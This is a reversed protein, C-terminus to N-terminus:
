PRRLMRSKCILEPRYEFHMLDYQRWKGGWIFGHKEMIRVISEPYTQQLPHPMKSSWRWYPAANVGLDVAIGYSHASLVDEGAIKRWFFGGEPILYKTLAPDKNLLAELERAANGFAISAKESLSVTKGMFINKLLRKKVQSQTAGYLKEFLQYPRKRGPSVLQPDALREPELPYRERMSQLVDQALGSSEPRKSAYLIKEGNDLRLWKRGDNDTELAQINHYAQKLCYFNIADELQDDAFLPKGSFVLFVILFLKCYRM